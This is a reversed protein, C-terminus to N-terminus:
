AALPPMPVAVESAVTVEDAEQGQRHTRGLLQEWTAGDSPPNAVLNRCFAQLNRGTGHAKISAVVTRKGNEQLIGAAAVDGAGYFPFDGAEAVARGFATLLVTVVAWRDHVLMLLACLLASVQFPGYWLPYELLSHLGIVALVGWALAHESRQIRWPRLRWVGALLAGVIAVTADVSAARGM